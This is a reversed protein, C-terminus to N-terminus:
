LPRSTAVSIGRGYEPSVACYFHYLVGRHYIVSPKHAYKSDVSGPAGVDILVGDCKKVRRLDPSLALVDRAVGRADLSYYFIAWGDAYQLVCPDSAFIEDLSGRPGNRVVPNGSFRGWSKLDKSSAFGTQEHWRKERTKANYFLYYTGQHEVLCAKYLGGQEWPRGDQPRLCPGELEWQRLDRSWCLGIVAPGEEYGPKPYAHYVGLYLGRVTKLYGPSFVGNERVIWTLAVNHRTVPNQPDRRLIVGEKRWDLLNFSSALGTQYGEGDFGIYTMYFADGHRFVFPADAGQHDFTGAEKSPAVLLRNAKYPTQLDDPISEKAPPALWPLALSSALFERRRLKRVFPEGKPKM